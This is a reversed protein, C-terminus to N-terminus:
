SDSITSVDFALTPDKSVFLMSCRLLENRFTESSQVKHLPIIVTQFFNVHEQRLPVAFGSIISALIDLLEPAGTFAVTEHILTYFQDNIARRILKRRPVLKAYLRHLINKLYERERPEKTDFLELFKVIFKHSVYAKLVKMHVLDSLVLQMFIEYVPLLHPWAQDVIKDEMVLDEAVGADIKPLSRLINAKIMDMIVELNPLILKNVSAQSKMLESIDSLYQM